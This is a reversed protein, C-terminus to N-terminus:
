VTNLSYSRHRCHSLLRGAGRIRDKKLVAETHVPCCCALKVTQVCTPRIEPEELTKVCTFGLLSSKKQIPQSAPSLYSNQSISDHVVEHTTALIFQRGKALFDLCLPLRLSVSSILSDPPPLLHLISKLESSINPRKWPIIPIISM